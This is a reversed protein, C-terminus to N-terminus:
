AANENEILEVLHRRDSRTLSLIEDLSWAYEAAIRNIDALLRRRDVVLAGLLYTQIDFEVKHVHNCEPCSALLELDILPAVLELLEEFAATGDPWGRDDICRNLLLTEAEVPTAGLAALEDRGTPLRFSVGNAARFSGDDLKVCEITEDAKSISSIVSQLSFDIDFPQACKACTLTSEIHDGFATRYVAALLRDRDSAVLDIAHIHADEANTRTEILGSLLDIANATSVGVVSYEDRGTLERVRAVAGGGAFRLPIIEANM